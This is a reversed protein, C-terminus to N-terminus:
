SDRERMMAAACTTCVTVALGPQDAHERTYNLMAPQYVVTADCVYCVGAVTNPQVAYGGCVLVGAGADDLVALALRPTM